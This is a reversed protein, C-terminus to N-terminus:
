TDSLGVLEGRGVHKPKIEIHQEPIPIKRKTIKAKQKELLIRTALQGMQYGQQVATICNLRGNSHTPFEDFDAFYFDGIDFSDEIAESIKSTIHSNECFFCRVGQRASELVARQMDEISIARIILEDAPHQAVANRYGVVRGYVSSEPREGPAVYVCAVPGKDLNLLSGVMYSASGSNDSTVYSVDPDEIYSDVLVYPLDIPKLYDLIDEENRTPRWIIGAIGDQHLKKIAPIVDHEKEAFHRILLNYGREACESDVGRLIDLRFRESICLDLMGITRSLTYSQKVYGLDDIIQRVREQTAKSIRFDGNIVRSVTSKSVGALVAVEDM